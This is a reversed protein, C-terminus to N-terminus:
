KLLNQDAWISQLHLGVFVLFSFAKLSNVETGYDSCEGHMVQHRNLATFAAGSSSSQSRATSGKLFDSEHLTFVPHLLDLSEQDSEFRQKLLHGATTSRVKPEGKVDRKMGLPSEVGLIESLWGDAQAIFVPTSLFFGDAGFETHARAAAGIATSRSPNNALLRDVFDQFNDRYYDVMCQDIEDNPLSTIREILPMLDELSTSWGFFWGKDAAVTMALKSQAPLADLKELYEKWDGRIESAIQPIVEALASMIPVAFNAIQAVTETFAHALAVFDIQEKPTESM